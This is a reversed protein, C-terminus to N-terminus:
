DWSLENEPLIRTNSPNIYIIEGSRVHVKKHTKQHFFFPRHNSTDIKKKGRNIQPNNNYQDIMWRPIPTGLHNLKDYLNTVSYEKGFRVISTKLEILPFLKQTKPNLMAMDLDVNKVLYKDQINGAEDIIQSAQGFSKVETIKGDKTYIRIVSKSQDNKNEVYLWNITLSDNPKPLITSVMRYPKYLSRLKPHPVSHEIGAKARALMEEKSPKLNEPEAEKKIVKLVQEKKKSGSIEKSQIKPNDSHFLNLYGVFSAISVLITSFIKLFLNNSKKTNRRNNTKPRFKKEAAQKELEEDEPLGDIEKVEFQAGKRPFSQPPLTEEPNFDTKHNKGQIGETSPTSGDNFIKDM